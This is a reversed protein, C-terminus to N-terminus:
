IRNQNTFVYNTFVYRYVCRTLILMFSTAFCALYFRFAPTDRRVGGTIMPETKRKKHIKIAFDVALIVCVVMTAIQIAIGAIIVDDGIKLLSEDNGAAIGGGAAQTLISFVDFGIFIWTYLQPKILSKEPGFHLVLHKLTLYLGGALFSPSLILCVIQIKFGTQSYANYHLIIRGAYGIAEGVCGITVAIGFTPLRYRIAFVFQTIACIAFVALLFANGGLNPAYGYTTNSVPCGPGVETCYHYKAM